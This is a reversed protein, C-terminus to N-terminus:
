NSNSILDFSLKLDYIKLLKMLRITSEYKFTFIVKMYNETRCYMIIIVFSIVSLHFIAQVMNNM